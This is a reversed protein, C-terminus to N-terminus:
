YSARGTKLVTALQSYAYTNEGGRKAIEALQAKAGEMDGSLALAEGMYSRALIYDPSRKIAANYYRLGEELHGMKRSTFGYYNLIRPDEQNAALTLLHRAEDYRKAYALERAAEYITDDDLRSEKKAAVCKQTKKDWVENKKCKTTTETPKPPDSSEGGAAMAISPVFFASMALAAVTNRLTM